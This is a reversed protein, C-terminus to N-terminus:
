RLCPRARDSPAGPWGERPRKLAPVAVGGVAPSSTGLQRPAPRPRQSAVHRSRRVVARPPGAAQGARRRVGPRRRPEAARRPRRGPRLARPLRPAPLPHVYKYRDTRIARVPGYEGYCCDEWAQDDGRLMPAYSSGVVPDMRPDDPVPIDLYDLLTPLFDCHDVLRDMTRGGALRSPMNFVLPVRISGEYFNKPETGNGKGWVGHQGCNLGHDSTYIVLTDDRAGITDLTDLIRGVSEDIHTVSAYYQALSEADRFHHRFQEIQWPHMPLDPIGSFEATRYLDVIREPHGRWPGHTGIYGVYLFFPKEGGHARMMEIARDTVVETKYGRVQVIRGDDCYDYTGFHDLQPSTISFWRDFGARPSNSGGVHWKGSFCTAYGSQQLIEALTLRDGIWSREVFEPHSEILWDHVGTQSPMMGTWLCARAPSCVPCPTYARRMVVGTRALYDLVPTRIEPPGGYGTAWAAHDDTQFLLVNPPEAM